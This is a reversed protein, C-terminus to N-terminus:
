KENVKEKAAKAKLEKVKALTKDPDAKATKVCGKCCTFVTQGNLTLKVPVGMEGLRNDDEIPCYKQAEALKRDAPSLKALNAKIEKEDAEADSKKDDKKDAAVAKQDAAAAVGEGVVPKQCGVLLLPLALALLWAKSILKM